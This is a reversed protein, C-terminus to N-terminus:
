KKDRKQKNREAKGNAHTHYLMFFYLASTVSLLLIRMFIVNAAPSSGHPGRTIISLLVIAGFTGLLMAIRIWTVKKESPEGTEGAKQTIIKKKAM